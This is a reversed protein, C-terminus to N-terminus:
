SSLHRRQFYIIPPGVDSDLGSVIALILTFSIGSCPIPMPIVNGNIYIFVAIAKDKISVISRSRNESQSYRIVLSNAIPLKAKLNLAVAAHINVSHFVGVLITNLPTAPQM